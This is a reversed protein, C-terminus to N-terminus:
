PKRIQAVLQTLVNGPGTEEFVSGGQAVLYQISDIWRVPHRIQDTLIQRARSIEYPRAELNSIVPFSPAQFEFGQLFEGFERSADAMHRSHFAASVKLRIVMRAGSEQFIPTAEEIDAIPGSIVTQRPSNFNAVDITDFAFNRLLEEIRLPPLGIVAAMGGGQARSM